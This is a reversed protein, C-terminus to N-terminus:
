KGTFNASRKELFANVGEHMDDSSFLRGFASKEASLGDHINLDDSIDESHIFGHMCGRRNQGPQFRRLLLAFDEDIGSEKEKAKAEKRAKGRM